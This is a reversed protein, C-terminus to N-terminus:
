RTPKTIKTKRLLDALPEDAWAHTLLDKHITNEDLQFFQISNKRLQEPLGIDFKIGKDHLLNQLLENSARAPETYASFFFSKRHNFRLWKAFVAEQGYLSDLLIV